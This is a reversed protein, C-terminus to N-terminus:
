TVGRFRFDTRYLRRHRHWDFFSKYTYFRSRSDSVRLTANRAGADMCKVVAPPSSNRRIPHSARDVRDFTFFDALLVTSCNCGHYASSCGGSTVVRVRIQDRTQSKGRDITYWSNLYRLCQFKCSWQALNWLNYKSRQQSLNNLLSRFKTM